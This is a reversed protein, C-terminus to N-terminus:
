RIGIRASMTFFSNYLARAHILVYVKITLVYVPTIMFTINLLAGFLSNFSQLGKVWRLIGTHTREQIIQNLEVDTNIGYERSVIGAANEDILGVRRMHYEDYGWLASIKGSLSRGSILDERQFVMYSMEHLIVIILCQPQGTIGRPLRQKVIKQGTRGQRYSALM